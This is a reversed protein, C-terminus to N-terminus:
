FLCLTKGFETMNALLLPGGNPLRGMATSFKQFDELSHLGEPFIMDAGADVYATARTVADDLGSVGAADTRACVIFDPDAADRALAARKVKESMDEIPILTKGDLHGCRKPFQQDEIHLGAAGAFIYERVCRSVMEGEGFGTDADAIVPLNSVATVERITASFTELGCLGIDPLGRSATM